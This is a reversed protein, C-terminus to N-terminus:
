RIRIGDKQVIKTPPYNLINCFDTDLTILIRRELRCIESIRSDPAGCLEEQGVTHADYGAENVLVAAEVPLNEDLKFRM